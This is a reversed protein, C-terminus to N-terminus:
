MLGPVSLCASSGIISHNGIGAAMKLEWFHTKFSKSIIHSLLVKLVRLCHLFLNVVDRYSLGKSVKILIWSQKVDSSHIVLQLRSIASGHKPIGQKAFLCDRGMALLLPMFQSWTADSRQTSPNLWHAKRAKRSSYQIM